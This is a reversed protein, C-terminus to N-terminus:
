IISELKPKQFSAYFLAASSGIAALNLAAFVGVGMSSMCVDDLSFQFSTMLWDDSDFSLPSDDDALIIHCWHM